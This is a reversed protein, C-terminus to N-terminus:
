SLPLCAQSKQKLETCLQHVREATPLAV